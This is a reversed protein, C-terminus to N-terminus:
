HFYVKSQYKYMKILGSNMESTGWFRFPFDAYLELVGDTLCLGKEKKILFLGNQLENFTNDM